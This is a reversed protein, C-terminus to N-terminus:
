SNAVPQTVMRTIEEFSEEVKLGFDNEADTQFLITGTPNARDSIFTGYRLTNVMIPLGGKLTLKIWM